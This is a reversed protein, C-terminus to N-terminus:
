KVIDDDGLLKPDNKDPLDLGTPVIVMQTDATANPGHREVLLRLHRLQQAALKEMSMYSPDNPDISTLNQRVRICDAAQIMMVVQINLSSNEFLRESFEIVDKSYFDKFVNWAVPIANVADEAIDKGIHAQIKDKDSQSNQREKLKNRRRTLASM